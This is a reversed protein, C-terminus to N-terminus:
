HGSMKFEQRLWSDVFNHVINLYLQLILQHKILSIYNRFNQHLILITSFIQSASNEKMSTDVLKCSVDNRDAKVALSKKGHLSLNRKLIEIKKTQEM